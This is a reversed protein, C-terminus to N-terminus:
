NNLYARFEARRDKAWSAEENGDSAPKEEGYSITAIRAPNIGFYSLYARTKSAREQGLGLNYQSSGRNDTHGEILLNYNQNEKLWKLHEDLINKYEPKIDSRDFDFYIKELDIITALEVKKIDPEPVSLPELFAESDTWNKPRNIEKELNLTDIVVETGAVVDEDETVLETAVVVSEDVVAEPEASVVVPETSISETTKTNKSFINKFNIKKGACGFLNAIFIVLLIKLLLQRTIM